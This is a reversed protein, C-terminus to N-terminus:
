VTRAIQFAVTAAAILGALIGYFRLELSRVRANLSKNADILSVMERKVDAVDTKLAQLADYIERNTIRVSSGNPEEPM